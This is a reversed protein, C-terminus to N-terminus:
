RAVDIKDKKILQDVYTCWIDVRKPDAQLITEFLAEGQNSEGHVFEMIAYQVLLQM